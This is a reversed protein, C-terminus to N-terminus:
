NSSLWKLGFYLGNLGFDYSHITTNLNTSNQARIANFYNIWMWGCDIILNGKTLINTYDIGLKGDIEPVIMNASGSLIINSKLIKNISQTMSKANGILLGTAMNAYIEVGKNSKMGMDVGFRPGFGNYSPKNNITGAFSVTTNDTKTINGDVYDSDNSILRSYELGGHLRIKNINSFNIYQGIELNVMDWKPSLSDKTNNISINSFNNDSPEIISTNLGTPINLTRTYNLNEQLKSEVHYWNLTVSNKTNFNYIGELMFGWGRNPNKSFLETDINGVDIYSQNEFTINPQFYLAKSGFGWNAEEKCPINVNLVQCMNGGTGSFITGSKLIMAIIIVKKLSRM